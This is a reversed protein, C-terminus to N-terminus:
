SIVTRGADSSQNFDKLLESNDLSYLGVFSYYYALLILPCISFVLSLTKLQLHFSALVLSPSFVILSIQFPRLSVDEKQRFNGIIFILALIFMNLKLSIIGNLNVISGGLTM